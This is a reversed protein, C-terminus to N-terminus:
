DLTALLVTEKLQPQIQQLTAGSASVEGRHIQIAGIVTQVLLLVSRTLHRLFTSELLVHLVSIRIEALALRALESTHPTPPIMSIASKVNPDM